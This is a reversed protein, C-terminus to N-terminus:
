RGLGFLIEQSIVQDHHSEPWTFPALVAGGGPVEDVVTKSFGITNKDKDYLIAYVSLAPLSQSGSNSITVQLSSGSEDEIYNKNSIVLRSLADTEKVWDPAKTFEFSPAVAPLSEGVQVAPIFALVNRHPPLDMIGSKDAIQIGKGDYLVMHFPVNYAAGEPNPNEIYAALNYLGHAIRELRVWAVKPPLFASACIKQCSGGCDVGYENGNKQGDFCTPAKYSYFFVPVGIGGVVVVVLLIAYILKRRKSWSVM